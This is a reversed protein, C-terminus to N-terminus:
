SNAGCLMFGLIPLCKDACSSYFHGHERTGSKNAKGWYFEALGLPRLNLVLAQNLLKPACCDGAGTPPGNVMKFCDALGTTQGRFNRLEYLNQLKKMTKQSINKRHLKLLSFESDDSCLSEMKRGLTKIMEDAPDMIERYAQVDFLPPAWGPVEWAANYQCSFARLVIIKGQADLCDMVGFMQGRAPGFLYDTSFQPNALASDIRLDIRKHEELEQMLELALKRANGQNLRHEVKCRSCWGYSCKTLTSNEFNQM